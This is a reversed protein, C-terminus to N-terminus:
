SMGPTSGSKEIMRRFASPTLGEYQRFLRAFYSPDELGVEAAVESIPFSGQSLLAKAQLVIAEHICRNVSKGTMAKVSKNLHNPSVHLLAAYDSALRCTKLHSFLLERFRATIQAAGTQAPIAPPEGAHRVECLLASCYSQILDPRQLAHTHFEELLRELLQRIFAASTANPEILLEGWLRLFSFERLVAHNFLKGTFLTESFNIIYGTVEDNTDFSFVAGAPVFLLQQPAASYSQDGIRMNACGSTVFLCSHTPSRSPPVAQQLRYYMDELRIIFFPGPLGKLQQQLDASPMFKETFAKPAYTKIHM